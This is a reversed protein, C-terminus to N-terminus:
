LGVASIQQLSVWVGSIWTETWRWRRVWPTMAPTLVLWRSRGADSHLNVRDQRIDMADIARPARVKVAADATANSMFLEHM